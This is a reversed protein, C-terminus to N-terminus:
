PINQGRISNTTLIIFEVSGILLCSVKYLNYLIFNFILVPMLIYLFVSYLSIECSVQGFFSSFCWIQLFEQVDCISMLNAPIGACISLLNAPIGVRITMLNALIEVCISMLNALIGVCMPMLHAPIGVCISMLNAPIGIGISMLNAPIGVCISMLNAPIGVCISLLNAPIGVCKSLSNALIGVFDPFNRCFRPTAIQNMKPKTLLHYYLSQTKKHKFSRFM